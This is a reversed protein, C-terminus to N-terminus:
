PLNGRCSGDILLMVGLSSVVAVVVFSLVFRLSIVVYSWGYYCSSLTCFLYVLALVGGVPTAAGGPYFLVGGTSSIYIWVDDVYECQVVIVYLGGLMFGMSKDGVWVLGESLIDPLTEVALCCWCVEVTCM